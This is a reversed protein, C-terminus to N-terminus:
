KVAIAGSIWRDGHVFRMQNQSPQMAPGAVRRGGVALPDSVTAIEVPEGAPGGGPNRVLRAGEPSRAAAGLHVALEPTRSRSAAFNGVTISGAPAVDLSRVATSM